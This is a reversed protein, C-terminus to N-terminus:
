VMFPIKIYLLNIIIKKEKTQFYSTGGLKIEIIDVLEMYYNIGVKVERIIDEMRNDWCMFVILFDQVISEM